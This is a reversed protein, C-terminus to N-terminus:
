AVGVRAKMRECYSVLEPQALVAGKVPTELPVWVINALFAYATTDIVGPEKGGYFPDAGLAAALVGVDAVAREIIEDRLHRGMGQGRLDRMIKRRVLAPVLQRVGPPLGGFFAPATFAWGPPDVWRLWLM